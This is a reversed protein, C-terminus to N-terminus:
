LLTATLTFWGIEAADFGDAVIYYTAGGTLPTDFSAGGFTDFCAAYPGGVACTADLLYLLQPGAASALQFRYMGSVSPAFRFIADPIGVTPTGSLATPCKSAEFDSGFGANTYTAGSVLAPATACVAALCKAPTADCDDVRYILTGGAGPALTTLAVAYHGTVPATFQARAEPAGAAASAYAHVVTEPTTYATTGTGGIIAARWGVSGSQASVQYRAGATLALDYWEVRRGDSPDSWAHLTRDSENLSTTHPVGVAPLPTAVDLYLLYPLGLGPESVPINNLLSLLYTGDEPVTFTRLMFPFGDSDFEDFVIKRFWHTGDTGHLLVVPQVDASSAIADYALSYRTGATAEFAWIDEFNNDFYPFEFDTENLSDIIESGVTTPDPNMLSLVYPLNMSSPPVIGQSADSCIPSEGGIIVQQNDAGTSCLGFYTVGALYIRGPEADFGVTAGLLRATASSVVPHLDEDYIFLRANYIAYFPVGATSGTLLATVLGGESFRVPVYEIVYENSKADLRTADSPNLVLQPSGVFHESGLELLGVYFKLKKVITKGTIATVGQVTIQYVGPQTPTYRIDADNINGTPSQSGPNAVGYVSTVSVSSDILGLGNQGTPNVETVIIELPQGLSVSDAAVPITTDQKFLKITITPVIEKCDLGVTQYGPDCACKAVVGDVVCDGDGSCTVGTCVGVCTKATAGNKYGPDCMCIATGTTEGCTGHGDCDVSNCLKIPVCITLSAGLEYGPECVCVAAGTTNNCTGHGDCDVGACTDVCETPTAGQTYGNACACVPSGSTNSCTGHDSCTVGACVSACGLGDPTPAYGSLCACQPTGTAASCLGLGGCTVGSCLDNCKTPDGAPSGYGLDCQCVPNGSTGDCIGHGSCFQGACVEVCTVATGTPHKWGADCDCVAVGTAKSCTGHQNCSVDACLDVCALANQTPAYGAECTCVPAGSAGACTGHGSCAVGTCVDDCALGDASAAYGVDCTCRAAGAVTACTGHDSCTVDACPDVVVTDVTESVVEGGDSSSDSAGDADPTVDAIGPDAASGCAALLFAAALMRLDSLCTSRTM